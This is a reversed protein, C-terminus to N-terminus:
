FTWTNHIDVYGPGKVGGGASITITGGIIPTPGSLSGSGGGHAPDLTVTGTWGNTGIPFKVTPKSQWPSVGFPGFQYPPQWPPKPPPPKQLPPPTPKAPPNTPCDLGFLDYENIPDQDAYSHLNIGGEEEIPDRNLWRQWSPVYFRYLYYYGNVSSVWEKSSFRYTNAAAYTGSSTTLNGFADYRYSAALGQAATELYMINGNGDAHYYDHNAFNGGSYSDSRALLGGIGGAGELTGSLDNGRTYSVTPTNNNDREQIVRNGDYIYEIGGLLTWSSGGSSLPKIGGHLADMGTGSSGNTQWQLQERLRGLGDYVFTTKYAGAIVSALRNEDDYTLNTTGSGSVTTVNGNGDYALVTGVANTLENKGDVKFNQATTINTRQSLNWANDYVYGRIEAVISSTAYKLQGLPDYQYKVTTGSANVFNTRENGQDYIYASSDLVAAGSTILKTALLRANGDYSNTIYSSNPLAIKQVLKLANPVYSYDFEGAPSVVDALRKAADYGFGNTWAGSPQQLGLGVRLRNNYIVSFSTWRRFKTPLERAITSLALKIRM